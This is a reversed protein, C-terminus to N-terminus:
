GNLLGRKSTNERIGMRGKLMRLASKAGINGFGASIIGHARCFAELEEVDKPDDQVRPLETSPEVPTMNSRRNALMQVPDFGPIPRYEEIPAFAAMHETSFHEM